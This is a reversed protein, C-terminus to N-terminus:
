EKPRKIGNTKHRNHRKILYPEHGVVLVVSEEKFLQDSCLKQYFEIRNRGPQLEEWNM